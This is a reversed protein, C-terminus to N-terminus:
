FVNVGFSVASRAAWSSCDSADRRGAHVPLRSDTLNEGSVRFSFHPRAAAHVGPGGVRPGAEVIDPAQNAGVDSIRDGFYNVLVRASFGGCRTSPRDPQLPEEVPRRAAAGALDAGHAARAAAHDEFRRVHLQRQRLLRQRSRPRSRARRRLQAGLRREPVHRDAARRRHRRARDAPRLVQLVLQRRSHQPRGPVTEWRADVNQILARELDPNGRTPATASSTPSSSPPWSASSRVTSRAHQLEPPPEPQQEAGARLQDGPLHRHEQKRRRHHAVFLGFPDFTNVTQDFREVRAGGISAPARRCRSTSWATSRGDDDPRRRLRRGPADRRQLPVGHRHQEATYLEEPPLRTSNCRRRRRGQDPRGPHLPLPAVQFRAHSRRLQRRVQVADTARRDISFSAGTPPSTSAHRRRADNFMRFGSQSEDALVPPTALNPQAHRRLFPAQYLTERLDPEDRNARAFNVRWDIRSNALERLLARRHAGNSM